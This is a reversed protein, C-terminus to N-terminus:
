KGINKVWSRNKEILRNRLADMGTDAVSESKTDRLDPIPAAMAAALVEEKERWDNPPKTSLWARM